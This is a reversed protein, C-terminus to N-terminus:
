WATWLGCCFIPVNRNKLEAMLFYFRGSNIRHHSDPDIDCSIQAVQRFPSGRKALVGLWRRVPERKSRRQKPVKLLSVLLPVVGSKGGDSGREEWPDAEKTLRDVDGGAGPLELAGGAVDVLLAAEDDAEVGTEQACKLHPFHSEKPSRSLGFRQSADEHM